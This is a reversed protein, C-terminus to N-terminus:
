IPGLVGGSNARLPMYDHPGLALNCAWSGASDNDPTTSLLAGCGSMHRQILQLKNVAANREASVQHLKQMLWQEKSAAMNHEVNTSSGAFAHPAICVAAASRDSRQKNGM